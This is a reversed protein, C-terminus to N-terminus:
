ELKKKLTDVAAAQKALLENQAPLAKGDKRSYM